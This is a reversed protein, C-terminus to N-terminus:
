PPPGSTLRALESPSLGLHWCHDCLTRKRCSTRWCTVQGVQALALRAVHDSTRGKILAVDGERLEKRLFEAAERLGAFAHVDDKAKGAEVVRRRGYEASEGIIVVVDAASALRPALLRLRAERSGGADSVDTVVAIRRGAEAAALAAFAAAAGDMSATYDDRLVIAGNPLGVAQMRGTFPEVAAIARAVTALEIGAIRAVALSALVSPVWHAGVLRTAIPQELGDRFVARFALRGPFRACVDEAVLDCGPATGFTFVRGRTREAMGAVLPDDGNLVATGDAGLSAVLEAKEAARAERGPFRAGHPDAVNLVVAIDPRVVRALRGVTRPRAGSVELVAYRHRRRVALLTTLVRVGTNQNRYTRATPGATALIAATLNKATTKGLSGTIAVFTTHRLHTRWVRAAAAWLPEVRWMLAPWVDQALWDRPRQWPRLPAEGTTM